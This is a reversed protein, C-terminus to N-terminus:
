RRGKLVLRTIFFGIMAFVTDFFIDIVEARILQRREFYGGAWLEWLEFLSHFILLGLATFVSPFLQGALGWLIGWLVHTGSWYNIWIGLDDNRYVITNLWEIANRSLPIVFFLRKTIADLPTDTIQGHLLPTM